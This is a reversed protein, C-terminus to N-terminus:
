VREGCSQAHETLLCLEQSNPDGCYPNIFTKYFSDFFLHFYSRVEQVLFTSMTTKFLGWVSGKM